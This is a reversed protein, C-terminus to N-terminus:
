NLNKQVTRQTNKSGRRLVCSVPWLYHPAYSLFSKLSFLSKCIGMRLFTSFEKVQSLQNGKIQLLKKINLSSARQQSVEIYDREQGQRM